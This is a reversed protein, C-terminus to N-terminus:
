CPVGEVDTLARVKTDDSVVVVPIDPFARKFTARFLEANELTAGSRLTVILGKAGVPITEVSRVREAALAAIADEEDWRAKIAADAADFEEDPTM